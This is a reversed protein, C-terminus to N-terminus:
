KLRSHAATAHLTPGYLPRLEMETRTNQRNAVTLKAKTASEVTRGTAHRRPREGGARVIGASAIVGGGVVVGVAVGADKVDLVVAASIGAEGGRLEEPPIQGRGEAGPVM